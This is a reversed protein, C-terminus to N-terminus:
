RELAETVDRVGHWYWAAFEDAVRNALEGTSDTARRAVNLMEAYRAPSIWFGHDDAFQVSVSGDSYHQVTM